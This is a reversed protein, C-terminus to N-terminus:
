GVEKFDKPTQYQFSTLLWCWTKEWKKLDGPPRINATGVMTFIMTGVMTYILNFFSSFFRLILHIRVEKHTKGVFHTETETGQSIHLFSQSFMGKRM